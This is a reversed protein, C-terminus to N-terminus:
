VTEQSKADEYAKRREKDYTPIPVDWWGFAKGGTNPYDRSVEVNIFAPNNKEIAKKVVTDLEDLNKIDYTDIDFARAISVFDPSYEKGEKQFDNGFASEKGYADIQLDKIAMWGANNAMIVIIPINYQAMTSLEQMIMMFDGDGLLAVVPRKPLALKAGMAAPVAWGM